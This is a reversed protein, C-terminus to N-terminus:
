KSIRLISGTESDFLVKIKKEKEIQIFKRNGLQPIIAVESHILANGVFFDIFTEQTEYYPIAGYPLPSDATKEPSNLRVKVTINGKGWGETSSFKGVEYEQNAISNPSIEFHIKQKTIKKEGFFMFLYENELKDLENLSIKLAKGDLHVDEPGSILVLRKERIDMIKQAMEKALDEAQSKVMKRQVSRREIITSDQTIERTILTDFKTALALVPRRKEQQSLNIINEEISIDKAKGVDMNIGYLIGKPSFFLETEGVPQVYYVNNKDRQIHPLIKVKDITYVVINNKNYSDDNFYHPTYEALEGRVYETKVIDLEIHLKAMPLYAQMWLGSMKDSYNHQVKVSQATLQSSIGLAFLLCFGILTMSGKNM